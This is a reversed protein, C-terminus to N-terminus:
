SGTYEFNYFTRNWQLLFAEYTTVVDDGGSKPQCVASSKACNPEWPDFYSVYKNDEIEAYGYVVLVHGPILAEIPCKKCYKTPSLTKKLDNWSLTSAIYKYSFDWHDWNAKVEAITAGWASGWCPCNDSCGTCCDIDPNHDVNYVYSASKCQEVKNKYYESIMEAAAAWYWWDRQQPHLNVGLSALQPPRCVCGFLLFAMVFSVLIIRITACNMMRGRQEITVTERTTKM